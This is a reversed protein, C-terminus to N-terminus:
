IEGIESAQLQVRSKVANECVLPLLLLARSLQTSGQGGLICVGHLILRECSCLKSCITGFDATQCLEKM